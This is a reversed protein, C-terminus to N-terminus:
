NGQLLPTLTEKTRKVPSSITVQCPLPPLFQFTCPAWVRSGSGQPNMRMGRLRFDFLLVGHM